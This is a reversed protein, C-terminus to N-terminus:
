FLMLTGRGFSARITEADNSFFAMIAGVKHTQYYPQDLILAHDFLQARLDYLIQRSTGMVFIRWFFRGVVMILVITIFEKVFKSM